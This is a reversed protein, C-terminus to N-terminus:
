GRSEPQYAIQEIARTADPRGQYRGILRGAADDMSQVRWVELKKDAAHSLRYTRGNVRCYLDTSSGIQTWKCYAGLLFRLKAAEKMEARRREREEWDERMRRGIEEGMWDHMLEVIAALETGVATERAYLADCGTRLTDDPRDLGDEWLALLRGTVDTTTLPPGPLESPAAHLDDVPVWCDVARRVLKDRALPWKRWPDRAGDGDVSELIKGPSSPLKSLIVATVYPQAALTGGLYASSRGFALVTLCTSTPTSGCSSILAVALVFAAGSATFLPPTAFILEARVDRRHSRHCLRGHNHGPNMARFMQAPQPERV